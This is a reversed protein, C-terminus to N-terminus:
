SPAPPTLRLASRGALLAPLEGLTRIVPVPHQESAIGTRDLWVGTLGAERAACADVDYRDGVYVADAPSMGMAACAHRFIAPSPKAWGCEDSILIYEFRDSIGCISLKRRQEAPLGNSIVGLREGALLSLCPLVDPFLRWASEYAALYEGFVVDAAEHTLSRDTVTLVRERGQEQYSMKGELYQSFYHELATSWDAAFEPFSTRSPVKGHLAMVGAREAGDHDLLTGDIDFLVVM